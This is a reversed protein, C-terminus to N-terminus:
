RLQAEVLADEALQVIRESIPTIHRYIELAFKFHKEAEDFNQQAYYVQGIGFEAAARVLLNDESADLLDLSHQYADFAYRQLNIERYLDGLALYLLPTPQLNIVQAYASIAQSNLNSAVYIPALLSAETGEDLGLEYITNIEAQVSKMQEEDLTRLASAESERLPSAIGTRASVTMFYRQGPELAWGDPWAASCVRSGTVDLEEACIVASTDLVVDDFSSLGSLSLQYELAGEVAVWSIAPAFDLLSTNRPSLIIPINGYDSERERAQEELALSDGILVIRGSDPKVRLASGTPMGTGAACREQTVAVEGAVDVTFYYDAFCIVTVHANEALQLRDGEALTTFAQVPQSNGNVDLRTVQGEVRTLVAIEENVSVAPSPTPTPAPTPTPMTCGVVLMCLWSGLLLHIPRFSPYMSKHIM